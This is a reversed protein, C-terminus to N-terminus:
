KQLIGNYLIRASLLTDIFNIKFVKDVTHAACVNSSMTSFIHVTNKWLHVTIQIVNASRESKFNKSSNGCYRSSTRYSFKNMLLQVYASSQAIKWHLPHPSHRTCIARINRSYIIQLFLSTRYRLIILYHTIMSDRVILTRLFRPRDLTCTSTIISSGM